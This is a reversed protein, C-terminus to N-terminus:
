LHSYDFLFKGEPSYVNLFLRKTRTEFNLVLDVKPIDLVTVRCTPCNAGFQWYSASFAGPDPVKFYNLDGPTTSFESNLECDDEDEYDSDSELVQCLCGGINSTDVDCFNVVGAYFCLHPHKENCDVYFVTYNLVVMCDKEIFHETPRYYHEMEFEEYFQDGPTEFVM